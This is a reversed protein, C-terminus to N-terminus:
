GSSSADFAAAALSAFRAHQYGGCFTWFRYASTGPVAICERESSDALCKGLLQSIFRCNQFSKVRV